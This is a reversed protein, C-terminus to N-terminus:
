LLIMWSVAPPFLWLAMLFCSVTQTLVSCGTLSAWLPPSSVVILVLSTDLTMRRYAESLFEFAKGEGQLLLICILVSKRAVPPAVWLSHAWGQLVGLLRPLRQFSHVPAMCEQQKAVSSFCGWRPPLPLLSARWVWTAFTLLFKYSDDPGKGLNCLRWGWGLSGKSNKPCQTMFCLSLGLSSRSSRVEQRWWTSPKQFAGRFLFCLKTTASLCGVLGM